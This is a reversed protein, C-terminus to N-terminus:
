SAINQWSSITALRQFADAIANKQFEWTSENKQAAVFKAYLRTFRLCLPLNGLQIEDVIAASLTSIATKLPHHNCELIMHAVRDQPKM